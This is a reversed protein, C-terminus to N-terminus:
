PPPLPANIDIKRSPANGKTAEVLQKRFEPEGAFVFKKLDTLAHYYLQNKGTFNGSPPMKSDAWDKAGKVSEAMAESAVGKSLNQFFGFRDPTGGTIEAGAHDKAWKDFAAPSATSSGYMIVGFSDLIKPACFTNCNFFLQMASMAVADQGINCARADVRDLGLGQVKEIQGKLKKYADPKMKLIQATDEDSQNAEQNRHIADAAEFELHVDQGKDGIYLKLGRTNGHCVLVVDGGSAAEKAIATLWDDLNQTKQFVLKGNPTLWDSSADSRTPEVPFLSYYPGAASSLTPDIFFKANPM